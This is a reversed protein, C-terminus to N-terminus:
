QYVMRWDDGSWPTVGTPYLVWARLDPVADFMHRVQHSDAELGAGHLTLFVPLSNDHSGDKLPLTKSPARLIAYSVNGSPHRFTIKHPDDVARSSLSCSIKKTFRPLSMGEVAFVIELLLCLSTASPMSLCIVLSRSQGPALM